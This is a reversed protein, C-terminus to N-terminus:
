VAGSVIGEGAVTVTVAVDSASRVCDALAVTAMPVGGAMDTPIEGEVATTTVPFVCCNIADTDPVELVATVQITEPVPHAPEAQPVIM